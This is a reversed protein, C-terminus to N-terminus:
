LSSDDRPRLLDDADVVFHVSQEVAGIERPQDAHRALREGVGVREEELVVVLAREGGGSIM